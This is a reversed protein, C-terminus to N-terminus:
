HSASVGIFREIVGTKCSFFLRLCFASSNICFFRPMLGHKSPASYQFLGLNLPIIFQLILINVFMRFLKFVSDALHEGGYGLVKYVHNGTAYVERRSFLLWVLKQVTLLSPSSREGEKSVSILLQSGRRNELLPITHRRTRLAERRLCALLENSNCCTYREEFQGYNPRGGPVTKSMIAARREPSTGYEQLFYKIDTRLFLRVRYKGQVYAVICASTYQIKSIIDRKRNNDTKAM